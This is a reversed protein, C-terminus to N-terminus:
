PHTLDRSRTTLPDTRPHIPNPDPTPPTGSSSRAPSQDQPQHPWIVFGSRQEVQEHPRLVAGPDSPLNVM